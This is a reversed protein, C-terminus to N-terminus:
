FNFNRLTKLTFVFYVLSASPKAQTNKSEVKHVKLKRSDDIRPYRTYDSDRSTVHTSLFWGLKGM